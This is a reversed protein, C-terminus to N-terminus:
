PGTGFVSIYVTVTLLIPVSVDTKLPLEAM